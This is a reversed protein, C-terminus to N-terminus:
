FLDYDHPSNPFILHFLYINVLLVVHIYFACFYINLFIFQANVAKFNFYFFGLLRWYLPCLKYIPFPISFNRAKLHDIVIIMHAKAHQFIFVRISANSWKYWYDYSVVNYFHMKSCIISFHMICHQFSQLGKNRFKLSFM